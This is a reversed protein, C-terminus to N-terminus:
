YLSRNVKSLITHALSRSTNRPTTSTPLTHPRGQIMRVNNRNMIGALEDFPRIQYGLEDVAACEFVPCQCCSPLPLLNDFQKYTNGVTQGCGVGGANLM